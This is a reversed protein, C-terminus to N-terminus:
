VNNILRYKELQDIQNDPSSSILYVLLLLNQSTNIQYHTFNFKSSRDQDFLNINNVDYGEKDQLTYKIYFDKDICCAFCM